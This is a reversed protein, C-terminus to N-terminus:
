ATSRYLRKSTPDLYLNAPSTTTPIADMFLAAHMFRVAGEFYNSNKWRTLGSVELEGNIWTKKSSLDIRESSARVNSGPYNLEAYTANLNLSSTLSSALGISDPGSTFLWGAPSQILKNSSPDIIFDGFTAKGTPEITTVGSKFLGGDVIEFNGSVTTDGTIDLLGTITTDGGIDTIGDLTTPGTVNLEGMINTNGTINTTGSIEMPGTVSVQGKLNTIGSVDLVGSITATGTVNLAGNEILLVSGDYFRLRGRGVSASALMTNTELRKLRRFIDAINPDNLNRKGM